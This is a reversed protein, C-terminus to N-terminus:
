TLRTAALSGAPNPEVKFDTAPALTPLTLCIRDAPLPRARGGYRRIAGAVDDARLARCFVEWPLVRREDGCGSGGSPSMLACTRNSHALGM